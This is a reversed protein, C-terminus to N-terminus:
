AASCKLQQKRSSAGYILFGFESVACHARRILVPCRKREGSRGHLVREDLKPGDKLKDHRTVQLAFFKHLLVAARTTSGDIGSSPAMGSAAFTRGKIRRLNFSSTSM